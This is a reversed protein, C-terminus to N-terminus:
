VVTDRCHQTGTVNKIQGFSARFGKRENRTTTTQTGPWTSVFRKDYDNQNKGLVTMILRVQVLKTAWKITHQERTIFPRGVDTVSLVAGTIHSM